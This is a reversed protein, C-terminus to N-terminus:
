TMEVTKGLKTIPIVVLNKEFSTRGLTTPTGKSIDSAVIWIEKILYRTTGGPGLYEIEVALWCSGSLEDIADDITTVEILDVFEHGDPLVTPMGAGSMSGEFRKIAAQPTPSLGARVSVNVAATRGINTAKIAFAALLSRGQAMTSVMHEFTVAEVHLWPRIDAELSERAILNANSAAELARETHRLSKFLAVLGAAGVLTQGLAIVLAWWSWRAAQRQWNLNGEARQDERTGQLIRLTCDSPSSSRVCERQIRSRADAAYHESFLRSQESSSGSLSGSDYLLLACLIAEVLVFVVIVYRSNGKSM